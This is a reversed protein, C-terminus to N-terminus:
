GEGQSRPGVSRGGGGGTHWRMSLAENDLRRGSWKLVLATGGTWGLLLGCVVQYPHAALRQFYGM